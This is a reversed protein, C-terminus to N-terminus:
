VPNHLDWVWSLQHINTWFDERSVYGAAELLPKIPGDDAIIIFPRNEANLGLIYEASYVPVTAFTAESSMGIFGSVAIGLKVLMHNTILGPRGLGWIYVPRSTGAEAVRRKLNNIYRKQYLSQARHAEMLPVDGYKSLSQPNQWYLGTFENIHLFEFREGMRLWYEQDGNATYAEDFFGTEDSAAKRWMPHPGVICDKLLAEYHYDPWTMSPSGTHREFTEHPTETMYSDGYVLAIDPRSDLTESMIELANTALRDNTSLVAIYRGRALRLGINWAAYIGINSGTKVYTINAAKKQFETVIAQEAQPSAADIIIVEISEWITQGRLNNLCEGIFVESMYASVLVTVVYEKKAAPQSATIVAEKYYAAEPPEHNLCDARLRTNEKSLKNIFVNNLLSRQRLAELSVRQRYRIADYNDLAHLISEKIINATLGEPRGLNTGNLEDSIERLKEGRLVSLVPVGGIASFATFHYRWSISLTCCSVLAIMQEPTFYRNPVIIPRHKMFSATKVAAEKDFYQGERTENCFFAAQWKLEHAAWDLAAATEAKIADDDKWNENVINVGIVPVGEKVGLSSLYENAWQKNVGETPMLWALDAAAVVREPSVGLAILNRRSRESRVTWSEFPLFGKNFLQRAEESYLMDAGIGAAHVPIGNEHCFAYKAGLITLPWQPGHMETVITTGIIIACGAALAAEKCANEDNFNIYNYISPLQSIVEKTNTNYLEITSGEPLPHLHLFGKM